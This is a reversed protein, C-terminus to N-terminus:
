VFMLRAALSSSSYATSYYVQLYFAGTLSGNDWYGGFRPLSGAALSGYDSYYTTTSGSTTKVIFGTETGGQIDSVYGSLNATSGQGYDTYGTGTDNFSETGILIRRSANNFLGDIWYFCNGYFDEVGSFKMQQKGTTEGFNMGKANTGGTSTASANGDVYGRGLATQSDLSKYRVVYLIQLMLLQFYGMQDYGAGNAQALTRFQGIAKSVTPAKGSLSRLKGASEFGLYAGIYAFPKVTTGRTHGWAKWTSDVQKTAYKVDLFNGVTEFKWWITPFEIMVDGASGSTIDAVVNLKTKSFDDKNLETVVVGDKFLVPRIQNFPYVNDWASVGGGAPSPSMGVANDTYTVSTLPNSNATDIRVGYIKVDSPTATIQQGVTSNQENGSVDYTFARFYYKTDNTLGTITASSMSGEYGIVGDVSSAPYSGTKYLIRIKNFDADTPNTWALSVSGNDEKTVTLNTIPAPPETDKAQASIVVGRSVLNEGFSNYKAFVKFYYTNNPTAPHSYSEASGSYALTHNTQCNKYSQGSLDSASVYVEVLVFENLLPNTWSLNIGEGTTKSVALLNNVDEIASPKNSGGGILGHATLIYNIDM